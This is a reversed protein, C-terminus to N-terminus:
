KLHESTHKQIAKVETQILGAKLLPREPTEESHESHGRFDGWQPRPFEFM